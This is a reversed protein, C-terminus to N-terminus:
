NELETQLAELFEHANSEQVRVERLKQLLILKMEPLMQVLETNKQLRYAAEVVSEADYTEERIAEITQATVRLYQDNFWNAQENTLIGRQLHMYQIFVTDEMEEGNRMREDRQYYSFISNKLADDMLRMNGTSLLDQYTDSFLSTRAVHKRRNVAAMFEVPRDRVIEPNEAAQMLLELLGASLENLRTLTEFGNIDSQINEILRAIYSDKLKEEARAQNWEGIQLAILIGVVILAIEGVAYAVYTRVKGPQFFSRRLKRFIFLM